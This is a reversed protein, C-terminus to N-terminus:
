ENRGGAGAADPDGMTAGTGALGIADSEPSPGNSDNLIARGNDIM